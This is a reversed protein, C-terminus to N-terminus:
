KGIAMLSANGGAAASNISVTKEKVLLALSYAPNGCQVSIIPGCKAAVTQAMRAADTENAVLVAGFEAEQPAFPAAISGRLQEPLRDLLKSAPPASQDGSDLILRNGTALAAGFQHMADVLSRAIGLVSGRPLFRLRNEEGVPGPLALEAALPSTVRYEEFIGLLQQRDAAGLLDATGDKVWSMLTALDQTRSEDRLGDLKPFPGRRVLRQLYLPGGAKPGTGSLGEGGFPQVGVVAGIMNRNVYINGAKAQGVANEITEDIRSHIGFTLGFGTANIDDILRSLGNRPFRMVHLIPGFVEHTLEGISGIELLTPAVFTAADPLAPLRTEFLM